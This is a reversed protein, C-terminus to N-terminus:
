NDEKADTLVQYRDNDITKIAFIKYGEFIGAVHLLEKVKTKLLFDRTSLPDSYITVAGGLEIHQRHSM